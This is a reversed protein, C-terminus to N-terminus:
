ELRVDVFAQRTMVNVVTQLWVVTVLQAVQFFFNGSYTQHNKYPLDYYKGNGSQFGYHEELCRDCKEGIVNPKCICQGTAHDCRNTGDIDCLCSQCDKREVADGFYGPACM